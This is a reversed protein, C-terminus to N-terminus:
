VHEGPDTSTQTSESQAGETRPESDLSAELLSQRTDTVTGSVQETSKHKILAKWEPLLMTVKTGEGVTSEFSIRGDHIDLIKKGIFLGIGSNPKKQSRTTFLSTLRSMNELPIGCGNDEIEVKVWRSPETEPIETPAVRVSILGGQRGSEDIAELGNKIINVIAQELMPVYARVFSERGEVTIKKNPNSQKLEEKENKVSRVARHVVELMSAKSMFKDRNYFVRDGRFIDVVKVIAYIREMSEELSDLKKIIRNDNQFRARLTQIDFGMTALPTNVDHKISSALMGLEVFQSKSSLKEEQAILEAQKIRIETQSNRIEEDRRSDRYAIASQLLGQMSIANGVKALQAILFPISEIGRAQLWPHFPYVFQLVAYVYFTTSLLQEKGGSKELGLRTRSMGGVGWLVGFSFIVGPLLAPSLSLRKMLAYSFASCLVGVSIGTIIWSGKQFEKKGPSFIALLLSGSSLLSLAFIGIRYQPYNSEGPAPGNLEPILYIANAIWSVFVFFYFDDKFFKYTYFYTGALVGAVAALTLSIPLNTGLFHVHKWFRLFFILHFLVLLALYSYTIAAWLRERNERAAIIYSNMLM